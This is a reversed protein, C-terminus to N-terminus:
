VTMAEKYEGWVNRLRDSIEGVTAEAEVCDLIRPVLNETGTRAKKWSGSRQKWQLPM